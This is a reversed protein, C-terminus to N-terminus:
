KIVDMEWDMLAKKMLNFQDPYDKSVDQTEKLDRDLHFLYTTDPTSLLKWPGSRMARQQNYSWFVDREPLPDNILLHEFFSIGDLTLDQKPLNAIELLTPFIDMSLVIERSVQDNPITGPWRAIAPVRHGGEFLGGKFGRFPLNSGHRNAGNDSCFFLLTRDDLDLQALTELIQGIGEDLVEVMEQYIGPIDKEELTRNPEAKVRISVDNRGQYPDHPAPYPLYLFFPSSQHEKIFDIGYQTILDTSYGTAPTITTDQWWDYIHMNDLHSHYDVNGSVFGRFTDFGQNVPNFKKKYGLHWKGFLATKYGAAQFVEALTKVEPAMGLSDRLYTYVVGPIGVRQQYKGSMLAARTPSCVAGNSHYDLFRIGEEAMRDLNPTKISLNGYCSLDNYGLDDAMILVINPRTDQSISASQCGLFWLIIAIWFLEPTGFKNKGM